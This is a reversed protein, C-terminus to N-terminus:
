FSVMNWLYLIIYILEFSVILLPLSPFDDDLFTSAFVGGIGAILAIGMSKFLLLPLFFLPLILFSQPYEIKLVEKQLVYWVVSAGFVMLGVMAIAGIVTGTLEPTRNLNTTLYSSPDPLGGSITYSTIKWISPSFVGILFTTICGATFLPVTKPTFSSSKSRFAVYILVLAVTYLITIKVPGLLFAFTLGGLLSVIALNKLLGKSLEPDDRYYNWIYSGFCGLFFGIIFIYFIYPVHLVYLPDLRWGQGYSPDVKSLVATGLLSSVSTILVVPTNLCSIMKKLLDKDVTWFTLVLSILTLIFFYMIIFLARQQMILGEALGVENSIGYATPLIERNTYGYNQLFLYYKNYMRFTWYDLIQVGKKEIMIVTPVSANIFWMVIWIGMGGFFVASIKKLLPRYLRNSILRRAKYLKTKIAVYISSMVFLSFLMGRLGPSIEENRLIVPPYITIFKDIFHVGEGYYSYLYSFEVGSYGFIFYDIFPPLAVVWFGILVLNYVKRLPMDTALKIVLVGLVLVPFNFATHQAILYISFVPYEFILSEGASRIIGIIVLYIFATLVTFRDKELIELLNELNLEKSTFPINM